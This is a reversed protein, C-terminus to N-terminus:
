KCKSELKYVHVITNLKYSKSLKHPKGEYFNITYGCVNKTDIDVDNKMQQIVKNM